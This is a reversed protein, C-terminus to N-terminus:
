TDDNSTKVKEKGNRISSLVLKATIAGILGMAIGFSLSLPDILLASITGLCLGAIIIVPTEGKRLGKLIDMEAEQTLKSAAVLSM